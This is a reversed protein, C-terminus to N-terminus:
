IWTSQLAKEGIIPSRRRKIRLNELSKMGWLRPRKSPKPVQLLPEASERKHNRTPTQLTLNGLSQTPIWPTIPNCGGSYITPNFLEKDEAPGLVLDTSWADVDPVVLRTGPHPYAASDPEEPISHPPTFGRRFSYVPHVASQKQAIHVESHGNASLACQSRVPRTAEGPFEPAPHEPSSFSTQGLTWAAHLIKPVDALHRCELLKKLDASSRPQWRLQSRAAKDWLTHKWESKLSRQRLLNQIQHYYTWNSSERRKDFHNALHDFYMEVVSPASTDDTAEFVEKCGTFGCAFVVQPCLEVKVRDTPPNPNHHDVKCHTIYAKEFDFVMRCSRRPCVWICDTNHFNQLHKKFDSKRGFGVYVDHVACLPCEIPKRGAVSSSKTMATARKEYISSSLHESIHRDQWESGALSPSPSILFPMDNADTWISQHPSYCSGALSGADSDGLSANSSSWPGSSTLSPASNNSGFTSTSLASNRITTNMHHQPPPRLSTYNGSMNRLTQGLSGSGYRGALDRLTRIDEPAMAPPCQNPFM